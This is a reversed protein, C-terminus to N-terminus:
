QTIEKQDQIDTGKQDSPIKGFDLAGIERYIPVITHMQTSNM